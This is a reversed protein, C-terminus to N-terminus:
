TLLPTFCLKGPADKPALRRAVLVVGCNPHPAAIPASERLVQPRNNELPNTASVAIIHSDRSPQGSVSLGWPKAILLEMAGVAAIQKALFRLV